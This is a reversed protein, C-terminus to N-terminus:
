QPPSPLQGDVLFQDLRYIRTGQTKHYFAVDEARTDCLWTQKWQPGPEPFARPTFLAINLGGEPDRASRYVFLGIGAERLNRGLQQTARYSRPDTLAAEYASFPPEHLYLGRRSAYRAAFLTHQTTLRGRPPAEAMGSWFVLRYYATEALAPPLTLAGYFLSPEERSGFRSGYKLPPYRFPSALLYDLRLSDAPMPPKSSELLEELLAQEALDDVLTRTAVQEQSEVVRIM